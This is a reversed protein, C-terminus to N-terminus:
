GRRAAVLCKILHPSLSKVNLMTMKWGQRHMRAENPFRQLCESVHKMNDPHKKEGHAWSKSRFCFVCKKHSKLNHQELAHHRYFQDMTRCQGCQPCRVPVISYKKLHSYFTAISRQM